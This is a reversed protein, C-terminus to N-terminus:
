QNVAPLSDSGEISVNQLDLVNIIKEITNTEEILATVVANILAEGKSNGAAILV